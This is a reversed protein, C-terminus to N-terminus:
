NAGYYDSIALIYAGPGFGCMPIAGQYDGGNDSGAQWRDDESGSQYTGDSLLEGILNYNHRAQDTVWELITKAKAMKNMKVLASATRLDVVVWEQRDYWNAVGPSDEDDTRFYGPSHSGIDLYYDFAAITGLAEASGPALIGVNISEVVSQDM